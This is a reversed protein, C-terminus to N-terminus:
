LRQKPPEGLLAVGWELPTSISAFAGDTYKHAHNPSSGAHDGLPRVHCYMIIEWLLLSHPIECSELGELGLVDAHQLLLEAAAPLPKPAQFTDIPRKSPQHASTERTRHQRWSVGCRPGHPGRSAARFAIPRPPISEFIKNEAGSHYSQDFVHYGDHHKTHHSLQRQKTAARFAIPRPRILALKYQLIIHNTLFM